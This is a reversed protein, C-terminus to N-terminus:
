FSITALRDLFDECLALQELSVYEDPKHAQSISGPGCIVAPIGQEQFLGAESGFTVFGPPQNSGALRRVYSVLPADEAIAFGPVRGNLALTIDAEPATARMEPLLEDRVFEQLENFLVDPDTWPLTRMDFRMTCIAPVINSAHGGAIVGTQLTSYPVEYGDHRREEAKLRNAIARIRVILQAAYEVANVGYPALASHAERGTVTCGYASGTKHGVVAVMNTPEGVICGRPRVDRKVLDALLHRVGLCGVEEDFSFALHVPEDRCEAVLMPVKALVAAIFGKMDCTGRAFLKGEREILEFPDSSWNQGDVPVVDTHGSLVIGGAGEGITAFLNAKDKNTGHSLHCDIGYQALYDRVWEILALNSNRSVTPFGVLTRLIALTSASPRRASIDNM